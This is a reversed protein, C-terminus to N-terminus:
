IKNILIKRFIIAMCLTYFIYNVLYAQNLGVVSRCNKIFILGLGVYLFSFIIETAIFTKTMSKAIMLFALLWSCIKFFDGTLQWVFLDAMPLFEPTYLVRIVISRMLYILGFGVLMM